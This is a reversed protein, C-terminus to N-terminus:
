EKISIKSSKILVHDWKYSSYLFPRSGEKDTEVVKLRLKTGTPYSRIIRACEIKMTPPFPEGVCPRVGNKRVSSDYFVEATIFCYEGPSRRGSHGM